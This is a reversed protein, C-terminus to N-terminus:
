VRNSVSRQGWACVVADDQVGPWRPSLRGLLQLDSQTLAESDMPSLWSQGVDVQDVGM